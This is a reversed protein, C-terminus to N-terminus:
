PAHGSDLLDKVPYKTYSPSDGIEQFVSFCAVTKLDEALAYYLDITIAVLSNTHNLIKKAEKPTKRFCGMFSNQLLWTANCM